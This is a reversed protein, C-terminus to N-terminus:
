PAVQWVRIVAGPVALGRAHEGAFAKLIRIEIVQSDDGMLSADVLADLLNRAHKDVDGSSRTIPWSRRRKPASKPKPVTIIAEVILPGELPATIGFRRIADLAAEKVAVRWPKSGELQEVMRGHGVHRLSGKPKPQGYVDFQYGRPGEIEEIPLTPGAPGPATPDAPTTRAVGASCPILAPTARDPTATM